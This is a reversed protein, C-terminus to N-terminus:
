SFDNLRRKPFLYNLFLFFLFGITVISLFCGTRFSAPRYVMSISEEGAELRLGLFGYNIKEPSHWRNNIKAWWGPYATESSALFAAGTGNALLDVRNPTRLTEQVERALYEGQENEGPVLCVKDFRFAASGMRRWDNVATSEASVKKISFWKLFPKPNEWLIVSLNSPRIARWDSSPKNGFAYRVDLYNLVKSLNAQGGPPLFYWRASDNLFLTNAFCTEELGFGLPWNPILAEKIKNYIDTANNGSVTQYQDVVSPPHYLRGTKIIETCVLPKTEYYNEPMVFSLSHIVPGLSLIIACLLFFIRWNAPFIKSIGASVTLLFSGWIFWLFWPVNLGLSFAFAFVAFVCWGIQEFLYITYKRNILKDTADLVLVAGAWIVLPIWYGSRVVLGYAPLVLKLWGGLWGTEGLSLVVVMLFLTVRTWEIKKFATGWLILVFATFSSFYVTVSYPTEPYSYLPHGKLFPNLWTGLDDWSLSQAIEMRNSLDSYATFEKFPILWALNYGVGLLLALFIKIAEKWKSIKQITMETRIVHRLFWDFGLTLLTLYCFIPYGSAMQMSLFISLFFFSGRRGESLDYAARFIWPIWSYTILMVPAWSLMIANFSFGFVLSGALSSAVSFNRARAFFLFGVIAWLHHFLIIVKYAIVSSFLWYSVILPPYWAAMQPDALYPTGFCALPNWLPIMGKDWVQAGWKWLPYFFRSSDMLVFVNGLFIVKYYFVTWLVALFLLGLLEANLKKSKINM